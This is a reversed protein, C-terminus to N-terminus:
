WRILSKLTGILDTKAKSAAANAVLGGDATGLDPDAKIAAISGDLDIQAVAESFLTPQTDSQFVLWLLGNTDNLTAAYKGTSGAETFAVKLSAWNTFDDQSAPFARFTLGSAAIHLGPFSAM